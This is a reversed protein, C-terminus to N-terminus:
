ISQKIEDHTLYIDYVEPTKRFLTNWYASYPDWAKLQISLRFYSFEDSYGADWLAKAIEAFMIDKSTKTKDTITAITLFNVTNVAYMDYTQIAVIISCQVSADTYSSRPLTYGIRIGLWKKAVWFQWATYPHTEYEANKYAWALSDLRWKNLGSQFTLINNETVWFIQLVSSKRTLPSGYWPKNVWYEYFDTWEAIRLIGKNYACLASTTFTFKKVLQSTWNYIFIGSTSIWYILAGNAVASLCKEWVTKDAYPYLKYNTGDYTCGHIYTDNNITYVINILGGQYTIYKVVAGVPLEIKAGTSLTTTEPNIEYIKSGRAFIIAGKWLYCVATTRLWAPINAPSVGGSTNVTSLLARVWWAYGVVKIPNTSNDHQFFFHRLWEPNTTANYDLNNSGITYHVDAGAVLASIDTSNIFCYSNYSQVVWDSSETVYRLIDNYPATETAYTGLFSESCSIKRPTTRIEINEMDFCEGDRALFPDDGIWWGWNNILMEAM